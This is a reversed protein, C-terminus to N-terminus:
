FWVPASLAEALGMVGNVEILAILCRYPERVATLDPLISMSEYGRRFASAFPAGNDSELVILELEKPAFAYVETDVVATPGDDNWLYQSGGIDFLILSAASASPLARLTAACKLAIALDSKCDARFEHCLWEIADAARRHFDAVPYTTRAAPSGCYALTREHGHALARGFAEATTPSLDDFSGVRRGPMLDTVAYTRGDITGTRLVRPARFVGADNIADNIVRLRGMDTSDIGFLRAVGTWFAGGAGSRASVRVVVHEAAAHVVWVDNGFGSYDRDLYTQELIPSDFIPQLDM